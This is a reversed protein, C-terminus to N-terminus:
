NTWIWTKAVQLMNWCKKYKGNESYQLRNFRKPLESVQKWHGTGFIIVLGQGAMSSAYCIGFPLFNSWSLFGVSGAVMKRYIQETICSEFWTKNGKGAQACVRSLEKLVAGYIWFFTGVAKQSWNQAVVSFRWSALRMKVRDWSEWSNFKVVWLEKAPTTKWIRM